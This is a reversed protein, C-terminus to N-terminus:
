TGTAEFRLVECRRVASLRDRGGLKHMINHAHNKVTQESINLQSAAKNTLGDRLLTM